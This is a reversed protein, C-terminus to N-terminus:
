PECYIGELVALIPALDLFRLRAVGVPDDGDMFVSLGAVWFVM